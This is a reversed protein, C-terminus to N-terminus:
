RTVYPNPIGMSELIQVELAEMARAQRAHRHDYGLLHLVGHITLHAYHLARRKGQMRAERAIVPACLVIDGLWAPEMGPTADVPFSLVNTAYDKRRFDRNLRRGEALGVIRLSCQADARGAAAIAARVWARFSV